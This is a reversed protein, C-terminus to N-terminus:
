RYVSPGADLGRLARVMGPIELAHVVLALLIVLPVDRRRLEFPHLLPLARVLRDVVRYLM